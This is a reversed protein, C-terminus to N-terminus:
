SRTDGDIDTTFNLPAGEGSTDTGVGILPSDTKIHFDESGSTVNVFGAHTADATTSVAINRLAAASGSADSSACTVMTDHGYYDGWAGAGGAYCNKVTLTGSAKKIGGQGGIVTSNYLKAAGAIDVNIGRSGSTAPNINYVCCNWINANLAAVEIGSQAYTSDNCGKLLLNSINATAGAGWSAKYIVLPSQAAGSIALTAIQLGDVYVFDVAALLAIANSVALNYKGTNWALRARNANDTVISIYCNVDTAVDRVEAYTTDPSSWTGSITIVAHQDSGTALTLDAHAARLHALCDGLNDFDGGAPKVTHDLQTHAM